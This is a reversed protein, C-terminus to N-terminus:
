KMAHLYGDTGLSYMVGDAFVVQPPVKKGNELEWVQTLTTTSLAYLKNDECRIYVLPEVIVPSYCPRSTKFRLKEAGTTADLAIVDRERAGYYVLGNHLAVATASRPVDKSKWKLTGDAASYSRIEGGDYVLFIQDGLVSPSRTNRGVEVDWREVGTERDVAILRGTETMLIVRDSAVAPPYVFKKSKYLWKVDGTGTVFAYLGRDHAYFYLLDGDLTPAAVSFSHDKDEFKWKAQKTRVDYAYVSGRASGFFVINERAAPASVDNNDFKLRLVNKGTSKDIAFLYGDTASYTFYLLDGAIIPMTFYQFTPMDVSIRFPGNQSRILDTERYYFLKESKWLLQSPATELGKTNLVRTRQSNGNVDITISQASATLFCIFTICILPILKRYL